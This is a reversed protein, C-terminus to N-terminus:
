YLGENEGKKILKQQVLDFHAHVIVGGVFVLTLSHLVIALLFWLQRRSCGGEIPPKETGRLDWITEREM